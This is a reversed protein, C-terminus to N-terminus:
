FYSNKLWVQNNEPLITIDFVQDFLHNGTSDSASFIFQAHRSIPGVDEIPPMYAIKKKNVQDQSFHMVPLYSSDKFLRTVNEANFLRGADLTITTTLFFPLSTITYMIDDDKNEVNDFWLANKTIFVIETEKVTLQLSTGQVKHPPESPEPYVTINVMFKGSKNPPDNNDLLRIEFFDSLTRSGSHRYYIRGSQLDTQSFQTVTKGETMPKLKRILTGQTPETKLIYLIDREESDRDKANLALPTIQIEGGVRVDLGTNRILMPAADDDQLIQIKFKGRINREGDTIRLVLKDETADRGDHYYIVAKRQMDDISFVESQRGNVELKGSRLGGKVHVEVNYMNDSDVIRLHETTIAAFSGEWLILCNSEVLRPGNTNSGQVAIHLTVPASVDFNQDIAVLEVKIVQGNDNSIDASPAQFGIMNDMLDKHKFSKLPQTFDDVNVFYGNETGEPQIVEILLYEPDTEQDEAVLLESDLPTLTNEVVDFISSGPLMLKPPNNPFAGDIKV